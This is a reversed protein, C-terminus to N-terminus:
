EIKGAVARGLGKQWDHLLKPTLDWLSNKSVVHARIYIMPAGAKKGVMQPNMVFHNSGEVVDLIKIRDADSTVDVKVFYM